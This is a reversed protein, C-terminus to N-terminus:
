RSQGSTVTRSLWMYSWAALVALFLWCSTWIGTFELLYGFILPLLFGGLGGIAGVTGGVIGIDEPFFEPIYKFVGVLGFGMMLGLLFVLTTFVEIPFEYYIRTYGEAILQKKTVHDGVSVTAKHWRQFEPMWTIKEHKEFLSQIKPKPTIIEQSKKGKAGTIIIEDDRVESVIGSINAFAGKGLTYLEMRPILLALCIFFSVSFVAFMVRRPGIYDVLAGGPVRILSCPISFFAALLGAQAVSLEYVSVYYIVLWQSISIFGGFAFIYYLGFRLVRLKFLPAIFQWLSKEQVGEKKKPFTCLVFLISMILAMAAYLLPLQRWGEVDDQTLFNLIAPALMTTLAVGTGGLTFVGVCLGHREPPFWLYSYAVGVAFTGGALGFGLGAIIFDRFHHATSLYCLSAASILMVLPFMLRGGFKDTLIGLPVRSLAGTLIPIAILWGIQVENWAFVENTVLFAVLVSYLTWIAVAVFFGVTCSTLVFWSKATDSM